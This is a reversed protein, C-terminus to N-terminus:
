YDPDGAFWDEGFLHSLNEAMDHFEQESQEYQRRAANTTPAVVLQQVKGPAQVNVIESLWTQGAVTSIDVVQDISGGAQQWADMDNRQGDIDALTVVTGWQQSAVGIEALAAYRTGGNMCPSNMVSNRDYTGPVYWEAIHSVIGLHMDYKVALDICNDVVSEILERGQSSSVDIILLNPLLNSYEIRARQSVPLGTRRNVKGLRQVELKSEHGPLTNLFKSFKDSIKVVLDTIGVQYAEFLQTLLSDREPVTKAESFKITEVIHLEHGLTEIYSQLTYSHDAATLMQVMDDDKFVIRAVTMLQQADLKYLQGFLIMGDYKSVGLAAADDDSLYLTDRLWVSDFLVGPKLEVTNNHTMMKKTM